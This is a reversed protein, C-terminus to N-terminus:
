IGLEARLFDKVGDRGSVRLWIPGQDHQSEITLTLFPCCLQELTAWESLATFLSRDNPFRLGYGDALEEIEVHKALLNRTLIDHRKRQDQDLASMNCYFPPDNRTQQNSM